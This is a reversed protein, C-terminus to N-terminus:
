RSSASPTRAPPSRRSPLWRPVCAMPPPNFNTDYDQLLVELVPRQWEELALADVFIPLDRPLFDPTFMSAMGSRGGFQASATPVSAFACGAALVALALRNRLKTLNLAPILRNM